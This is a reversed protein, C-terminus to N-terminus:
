VCRFVVHEAAFGPGMASLIGLDGSAGAGSDLFDRLAVLVTPSSMNGHRRLVSRSWRLEHDDLGLVDAFADLVKAGGPHLVHHRLDHRCIGADACVADVSAVLHRRVIQPVSRSLVIGMGDASFTWGMVDATDPWLVCSSAVIEVQPAADGPQRAADDAHGVVVAAAGDAFLSTAVLNALSADHRQLTLGCLETAVLLAPRRRRDTEAWTAVRSLGGVGGACGHGFTADRRVDAPLGLRGALVADLSPTAFGTSSVFSIAGVEDPRVGARTLADHAADVSLETAHHVYTDNRETLDHDVEFWSPPVCFAREDVAVREFLGLRRDIDDIREAFLSRALERAAGQDIRHPPLACGVGLVRVSM